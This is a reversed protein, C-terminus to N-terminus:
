EGASTRLIWEYRHRGITRVRTWSLYAKSRQKGAIGDSRALGTLRSRTIAFMRGLLRFTATGCTAPKKSEM